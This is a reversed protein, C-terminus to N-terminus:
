LGSPVTPEGLADLRYAHLDYSAPDRPDRGTFIIAEDDTLGATSRFETGPEPTLTWGKGDSLRILRATTPSTVFLVLGKHASVGEHDREFLAEKAVKRPKLEASTTAFPSTWVELPPRGSEDGAGQELWVMADGTGRDLGMGRYERTGSLPTVRQLLGSGEAYMIAGPYGGGNFEFLFVGNRAPIPMGLSPIEGGDPPAGLAATNGNTVDHMITTPSSTGFFVTNGVFAHPVVGSPATFNLKQWSLVPTSPLGYAGLSTSHYTDGGADLGAAYHVSSAGTQGAVMLANCGSNKQYNTGVAAIAGGTKLDFVAMAGLVAREGADFRAISIELASTSGRQAIAEYNSVVGLRWPTGAGYLHRCGSKFPCALWRLPPVAKGPQKAAYTECSKGGRGLAIPEWADTAFNIDGFSSAGDGSALADRPGGGDPTVTAGDLGGDQGADLDEGGGKLPGGCGHVIGIVGGFSMLCWLASLAARQKSTM